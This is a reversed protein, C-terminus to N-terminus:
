GGRGGRYSKHIDTKIVGGECEFTGQFGMGQEYYKLKFKFKPFIKSMAFIVPTPPSWATSFNYMLKKGDLEPRAESDWFRANWKTGWNAIHWDYFNFNPKGKLQHLIELKKTDKGKQKLEEIEAEEKGYEVIEEPYPVFKGFDLILDREGEKEGTYKDKTFAFEKFKNLDPIDKKKATIILDCDCWNPM